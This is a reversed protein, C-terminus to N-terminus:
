LADLSVKIVKEHQREDALANMKLDDLQELLKEYADAPVCYFAPRNRNLIAIPFGEASQVIGMPNKKLESISATVDALVLNTGEMM